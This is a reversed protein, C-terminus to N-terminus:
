QENAGEARDALVLLWGAVDRVEEPSLVESFWEDCRETFEVGEGPLASFTVVRERDLRTVADPIKESM